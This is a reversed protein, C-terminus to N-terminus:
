PVSESPLDQSAQGEAYSSSASSTDLAFLAVSVVDSQNLGSVECLGKLRTRVGEPLRVSVVKIGAAESRQKHALTARRQSESM